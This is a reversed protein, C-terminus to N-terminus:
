KQQQSFNSTDLGLDAVTQQDLRGNAQIQKSQQFQKVANETKPGWRGDTRGTSFGDKDLAQQVQRIKGQSLNQPSITQDNQAAQQNSNPQAAQENNPMNGQDQTNQQSGQKQQHQMQPGQPPQQNNNYNNSAALAGSTILTTALLAIAAKRMSKEM